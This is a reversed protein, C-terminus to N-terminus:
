IISGVVKGNVAIHNESSKPSILIQDGKFYIVAHISAVDSDDLRIDANRASGVSVSDKYFCDWGLCEEGKFVFVQALFLGLSEHDTSLTNLNLM